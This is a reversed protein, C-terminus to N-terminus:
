HNGVIGVIDGVNVRFVGIGILKLTAVAGNIM